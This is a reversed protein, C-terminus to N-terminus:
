PAPLVQLTVPEGFELLPGAILAARVRGGLDREGSDWDTELQRYAASPRFACGLVAFGIRGGPGLIGALRGLQDAYYPPPADGFVQYVVQRRPREVSCVSATRHILQYPLDAVADADVPGGAVRGILGLWGVLVARRNETASPGLWSGVTEYPPETFKAEIGVAAGEALIMLDTYSAKGHGGAVPVAYEFCLDASGPPALGLELWLRDVRAQPDRWYDVLPVTSRRPSAVADAPLADVLEGFASVRRGCISYSTV